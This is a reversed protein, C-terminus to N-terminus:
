CGRVGSSTDRCGYINCQRDSYKTSDYANHQIILTRAALCGDFRHLAYVFVGVCVCVCVCM